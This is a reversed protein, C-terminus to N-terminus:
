VVIVDTLVLDPVGSLGSGPVLSADATCSDPDKTSPNAVTVALGFEFAFAVSYTDAKGLVETWALTHSYNFPTTSSKAQSLLVDGGQNKASLTVLGAHSWNVLEASAAWYVRAFQSPETCSSGSMSVMIDLNVDFTESIKQSGGRNTFKPLM